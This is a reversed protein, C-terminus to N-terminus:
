KKKGDRYPLPVTRTLQDFLEDPIAPVNLIPFVQQLERMMDSDRAPALIQDIVDSREDQTINGIAVLADATKEICERLGRMTWDWKYGEDETASMEIEIEPPVPIPFGYRKSWEDAIGFTACYQYCWIFPIVDAYRVGFYSADHVVRTFKPFTKLMYRQRAKFLDYQEMSLMTGSIGIESASGQIPANKGRRQASAVFAQHGSMARFLRRQRGTWSSVVCHDSAHKSVTDLYSKIGSFVAFFRDTVDQAENSFDKDESARLRLLEEQIREIDATLDKDSGDKVQKELDALENVAAKIKNTRLGAALSLLGLGYFLGFAINKITDRLIHSKPVWKKFVTFVNQIHIDGEMKLKDELAKIEDEGITVLLQQRLKLGANFSKLIKPDRAAIGGMRVEHASYDARVQIEGKAARFMRKILKALRGRSPINQHNPKFSALRGTVVHFFRYGARFHKDSISDPDARLLKIWGVVYTSLLKQIEQITQGLKAEPYTEAYKALFAKDITPEGTKESFSLPELELHEIFLAKKHAPKNFSFLWGASKSAVKTVGATARSFLGGRTAIGVGRILEDNVANVSKLSRLQKYVEKLEAILPSSPETLSIMYDLDIASGHQEMTSLGHSQRGMHYLRHLTFLRDYPVFRQEQWSYVRQVKARDVQMQAIALVAVVDTAAYMLFAPDDPSILATLNRQEKGFTAKYYFDNEYSTYIARLNEPTWRKNQKDGPIMLAQGHDRIADPLLAINEDLLAEGATVDIVHHHIVNLKLAARLVRTDFKINAGVFTKRGEESRRGIFARLKKKVYLREDDTFPGKPHDVPIVFGKETNVAFQVTHVANNYSTLNRTEIDLAMTDYRELVTMLKDFKDITNIYVPTTKIAKLSFPHQGYLLHAVHNSVAFLLDALAGAGEGSDGDGGDDKKVSLMPDLDLSPTYLRGDKKIVWGLREQVYDTLPASSLGLVSSAVNHGCLVVHTPNHKEILDKVRQTFTPDYVAARRADLHFTKAANWNIVGVALNSAADVPTKGRLKTIASLTTLSQGVVGYISTRVPSGDGALQVTKSNQIRAIAMDRGPVTQLVFMLRHKAKGWNASLPIDVNFADDVNVSPTPKYVYGSKLHDPLRRIQEVPTVNSSRRKFGDKNQTQQKTAM